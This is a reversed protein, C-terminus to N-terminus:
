RAFRSRYEDLRGPSGVRASPPPFNGKPTCQDSDLHKLTSLACPARKADVYEKGCPSISAIKKQAKQDNQKRGKFNRVIACVKTRVTEEARQRKARDSVGQGCPERSYEARFFKVHGPCVSRGINNSKGNVESRSEWWSCEPGPDQFFVESNM